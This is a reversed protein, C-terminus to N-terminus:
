RPDRRVKQTPTLLFSNRGEGKLSKDGITEFAKLIISLDSDTLQGFTQHIKSASWKVKSPTIPPKLFFHGAAQNRSSFLM